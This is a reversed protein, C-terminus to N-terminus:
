RINLRLGLSLNFNLPKESYITKLSSGNDFYYSLGPEVYLGIKDALMYEAGVAGNASLQLPRATVKQKATATTTGEEVTKEYRNGGVMKEVTAGASVYANFRRSRYLSYSVTVPIGVYHLKQVTERRYFGGTTEIDSRLYSYCLGADVSWRDDLGYRLSLGYRVPQHHDASVTEPSATEAQVGNNTADMVDDYPGIPNAASLYYGVNGNDAHGMMGNGVYAKAVLRHARKRDNASYPEDDFLSKYRSPTTEKDKKEGIADPEATATQQTAPQVVENTTVTLPEETATQADAVKATEVPRGRRRAGVTASATVATEVTTGGHRATGAPMASTHTEMAQNGLKMNNVENFFMWGTGAVLVVIAAVAVRRWLPVVRAKAHRQAALAKDIEQWSVEPATEEYSDMKQRIDDIWQESM